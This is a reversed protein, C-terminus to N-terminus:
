VEKFTSCLTQESKQAGSGSVEIARASCKEHENYYCSKASCGINTELSASGTIKNKPSGDSDRFSSCCTQEPVDAHDGSVKIEKKECLHEENYACNTVGCLLNTM